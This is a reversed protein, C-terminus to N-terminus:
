KKRPFVCSQGCTNVVQGGPRLFADFQRVAAPVDGLAGHAGNDKMAPVNTRSPPPTAQVDFQVYAADVPGDAQSLGFVPEVAPKLQPLGMTRALTRTAVNPVQADGVSEQLSLPHCRPDPNAGDDGAEDSCGAPSLLPLLYVLAALRPMRHM